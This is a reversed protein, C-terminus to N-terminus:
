TTRANRQRSRLLWISAGLLGGISDATWDRIDASRGEIYMQHWEDAAGMAICFLFAGFLARTRTTVAPNDMARCTLFGLIAYMALHVGKDANPITSTPLYHGPISTATLIAGM